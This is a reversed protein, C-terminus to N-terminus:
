PAEGFMVRDFSLFVGGIWLSPRGSNSNPEKLGAVAYEM